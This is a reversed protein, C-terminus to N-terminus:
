FPAALPYQTLSDALISRGQPGYLAFDLYEIVIAIADNLEAPNVPPHGSGRTPHSTAKSCGLWVNALKQANANNLPFFPAGM